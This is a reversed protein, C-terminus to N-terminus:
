PPHHIALGKERKVIWNFVELKPMLRVAPIIADGTKYEFEKLLKDDTKLCIIDSPM